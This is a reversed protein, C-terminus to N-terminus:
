SVTDVTHLYGRTSVYQADRYVCIFIGDLRIDPPREHGSLKGGQTPDKVSMLVLYFTGFAKLTEESSVCICM